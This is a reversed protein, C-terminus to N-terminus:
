TTSTKINVGIMGGVLSALLFGGHTLLQAGSFGVQYGLYQYLLVFLTFGIATMGGLMWGKDEGKVGAIFGGIFLSLIGAGLTTWDLMEEGMKTFRLLLALTFSIFLLLSFVTIWGYLIAQVNKKM